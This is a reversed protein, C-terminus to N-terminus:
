VSKDIKELRGAIDPENKEFQLGILTFAHHAVRAAVDLSPKGQREFITLVCEDGNHIPEELTGKLSILSGGSSINELRCPTTRGHYQLSGKLKCSYRAFRRTTQM